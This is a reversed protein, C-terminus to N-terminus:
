IKKFVLLLTFKLSNTDYSNLKIMVNGSLVIKYDYRGACKM